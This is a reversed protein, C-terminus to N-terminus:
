SAVGAGPFVDPPLERITDDEEEEIEVVRTTTGDGITVFKGEGALIRRLANAGSANIVIADFRAGETLAEWLVTAASDAALEALDPISGDPVDDDSLPVVFCVTWGPRPLNAQQRKRKKSM